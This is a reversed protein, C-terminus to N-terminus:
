STRSLCCLCVFWFVASACNSLVLRAWSTDHPTEHTLPRAKCTNVLKDRPGCNDSCPNGSGFWLLGVLYVSACLVLWGVFLGVFRCVPLSVQVCELFFQDEAQEMAKAAHKRRNKLDVQADLAAKLQQKVTAQQVKDPPNEMPFCRGPDANTQLVTAELERQKRERKDQVQAVLFSNMELQARKGQLEKRRFALDSRQVREEMEKRVRRLSDAEEALEQEYRSYAEAVVKADRGGESVRSPALEPRLFVPFVTEGSAALAGPEGYRTSQPSQPSMRGQPSIMKDPKGLSHAAVLGPDYPSPPQSPEEPREDAEQEPRGGGGGGGDSALALSALEARVAADAAAAEEAEGQPDGGGGGDGGGSMRYAIQQDLQEKWMAKIRRDERRRERPGAAQSFPWHQTAMADEEKEMESHMTRTRVNEAAQAKQEEFLARKRRAELKATAREAELGENLKAIVDAHASRVSAKMKATAQKKAEIQQRHYSMLGRAENRRLKESYGSRASDLAMPSGGVGGGGGGVSLQQGGVLPSFGGGGGGMRQQASTLGKRLKGRASGGGVRGSGGGGGGGAGAVSGGAHSQPQLAVPDALAAEEPGGGADGADLGAPQLPALPPVGAGAGPKTPVPAELAGSGALQSSSPLLLFLFLFLFLLLLLSRRFFFTCLRALSPTLEQFWDLRHRRHM